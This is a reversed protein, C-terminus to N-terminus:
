KMLTMKISSNYNDSYIKCIYIGSSLNSGNFPISYVGAKQYDNVLTIVESGLVDYIKVSVMGDFPLSYTINTVPNFPNPYNQYLAYQDPIKIEVCIVNSYETQGDSDIQKLRYYYKNGSKPNDCFTYDKPSNSNGNGEIFGIKNWRQVFGNLDNAREIEFGYNNVETETRWKLLVYSGIQLANFSSLEVPLPEGSPTNSFTFNKIDATNESVTTGDALYFYMLDGTTSLTIRKLDSIQSNKYSGNSLLINLYSQSFLQFSSFFLFGILLKM